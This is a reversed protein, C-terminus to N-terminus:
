NVIFKQVGIFEHTKIQIFYVGKAAIELQVLTNNEGISTLNSNVLQMNSNYVQFQIMESKAINLQTIGSPSPNPALVIEQKQSALLNMGVSTNVIPFIAYDVSLPWSYKLTLWKGSIDKEWSQERSGSDGDKNTYLAVTDLVNLKEFNIGIAFNSDTYLPDSYIFVNGNSTDIDAVKISDKHFINGPCAATNSITNKGTNNLDYFDIGVYSSDSLSSFNIFGFNILVGYINCLNGAHFEQVKAKDSYANNGSCYGGGPSPYIKYSLTDFYQKNLTDNELAFCNSCTITFYSFFSFLIAVWYIRKYM